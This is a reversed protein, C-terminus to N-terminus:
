IGVTDGITDWIGVTSGVYSGVCSGDLAGLGAGHSPVSGQRRERPSASPLCWEMKSVDELTVEVLAEPPLAIRERYLVSGQLDQIDAMASQAGLGVALVLGARLGASKITSRIMRFEWRHKPWGLRGGLRSFAGVWPTRTLTLLVKGLILAAGLVSKTLYSRQGM